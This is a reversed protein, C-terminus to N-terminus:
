SAVAAIYTEDHRFFYDAREPQELAHHGALAALALGGAGLAFASVIGFDAGLDICLLIFPLWISTELLIMQQVPFGTLYGGFAFVVASVLGGTRSHTLRRALLYMFLSGLAVHAVIGAEFDVLPFAGGAFHALITDPPYLTHFQIDGIASHGAALFQNWLPPIGRSLEEAVWRRYPYHLETIDGTPLTAADRPDAVFLRWYFAPALLVAIVPALLELFGTWIVRLLFGITGPIAFWVFRSWAVAHRRLGLPLRARSPNWLERAIM